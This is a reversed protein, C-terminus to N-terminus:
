LLVNKSRYEVNTRSDIMDKGVVTVVPMPTPPLPMKRPRGPKEHKVPKCHPESAPPKGATSEPELSASATPETATITPEGAATVPEASGCEHSPASSTMRICANLSSCSLLVRFTRWFYPWDPALMTIYMIYVYMYQVDTPLM